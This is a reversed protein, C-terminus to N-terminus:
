IEGSAYTGYNKTDVTGLEFTNAGANVNAVTFRQGNVETMGVVADVDVVDGNLPDTGTYTLVGPAARTIWTIVLPTEFGNERVPANNKKFRFYQDGVEIPYAQVTSHKFRIGRTAKSSYRVEDCWYSGSRRMVGGQVLPINNLCRRMAAKYADTEVRGAMLESIEGINFNSQLPSVKPM